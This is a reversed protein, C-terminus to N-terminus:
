RRDLGRHNTSGKPSKMPVVNVYSFTTTTLSPEGSDGSEGCVGGSVGAVVGLEGPLGASIGGPAGGVAPSLGTGCGPVVSLGGALAVFGSRFRSAPSADVPAFTKDATAAPRKRIM